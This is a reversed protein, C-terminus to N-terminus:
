VKGIITVAKRVQTGSQEYRCTLTAPSAPSRAMTIDQASDNHRFIIESQTDGGAQMVLQSATCLGPLFLLLALLPSMMALECLRTEQVKMRM